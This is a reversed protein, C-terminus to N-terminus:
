RVAIRSLLGCMCWLNLQRTCQLDTPDASQALYGLFALLGILTLGAVWITRSGGQRKVPKETAESSSDDHESSLLTYEQEKLRDM